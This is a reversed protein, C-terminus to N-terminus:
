ARGKMAEVLEGLREAIFDLTQSPTVGLVPDGIHMGGVADEYAWYDAKAIAEGDAYLDHASSGMADAIAYAKRAVDAPDSYGDPHALLGQLAAAAFYKRETIAM